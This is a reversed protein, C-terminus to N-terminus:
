RDIQTTKVSSVIVTVDDLKGGTYGVYGAAQAADGFPSRAFSSRGVEQARMALLEAIEQPKLNAQLSKSVVSAIEQDYLNDFLGNSATIIVDGDNVDIKYEEIIESPDEGTVIQLPFSFEHFMPTSKKFICGDRIVMFGTNGVNAAHFAQGDFHAVLIASSGSKQTEAAGSTIVEAPKMTSLNEHDSVINKCKEILERIYHGANSGQLSWDSVGDAVGLWNSHSIFYADERGTSAKSPHPLCAAGSILCFETTSTKRGHSATEVYHTEPVTPLSPNEYDNRGMSEVDAKNELDPTAVSDHLTVSKEMKSEDFPEEVIHNTTEEDVAVKESESSVPILEGIDSDVDATLSIAAKDVDVNDSHVGAALSNAAKDVDVVHHATEEDDVVQEPELSTSVSVLENIVNDVGAALSEEERDVDAIHHTTEKDNAVQEPELSTSVPMLESSNADVDIDGTLNNAAGDSEVIEHTIEKNDAVQEQELELSSSVSIPENIDAAIGDTASNIARDVGHGKDVEKVEEVEGSAHSNLGPIIDSEPTVTSVVEKQNDTESDEESLSPVDNGEAAVDESSIGHHVDEGSDLMLNGDIENEDSIVAAKSVNYLVNSEEENVPLQLNRNAVSVVVTSSSEIEEVLNHDVETNLKEVGESLLAPGAEGVKEVAERALKEQELEAMRKRVESANAFQFVVSGDSCETSSLIDVEEPVSNSSSSSPSTSNALVHTHHTVRLSRKPLPIPASIRLRESSKQPLNCSPVVLCQFSRSFLDAM